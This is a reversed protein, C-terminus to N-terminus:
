FDLLTCIIWRLRLGPTYFLLTSSTSWIDLDPSHEGTPTPGSLWTFFLFILYETKMEAVEWYGGVAIERVNARACVTNDAADGRYEM